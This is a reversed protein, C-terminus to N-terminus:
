AVFADLHEAVVRPTELTPFHTRGGLHTPSYWPHDTAFAALAQHYTPDDPQSYLHATPRPTTLASMRRLPSGWHAYAAEIVRCSRAWMDFDFFAMEQDLHKDVPPCDAMARWLDFLNERGRIWTREDQITRLDQIFAAPAELQLWDIVVVKPVRTAGLRDAIELNAWGGHSTSVPVVESVDLHDLLAIVDDAQEAYGFDRQVSREVGHGRWDARIVRHRGSLYPLLQDFLRHDQCWGSLLLFTTPGSGTLDYDLAHDNLLVTNM